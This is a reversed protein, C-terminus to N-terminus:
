ENTEWIAHARQYKLDNEVKDSMLSLSNRLLMEETQNKPKIFGENTLQDGFNDLIQSAEILKDFHHTIKVKQM